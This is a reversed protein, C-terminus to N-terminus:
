WKKFTYYEIGNLSYIEVNEIEEFNRGNFVNHKYIRIVRDLTTHEIDSWIPIIERSDFRKFSLEGQENYYIYLWSIGYKYADKGILFLTRLFNTDFIKLLYESFEKKETSISPAKTLLYNVKKELVSKFLNDIIKNNPMNRLIVKNGYDDIGKIERELVDHNGKYYKDGMEMMKYTDSMRYNEIIVELEKLTINEMTKRRFFRKIFDFMIKERNELDLAM